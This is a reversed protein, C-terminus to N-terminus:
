DFSHMLNHQLKEFFLIEIFLYKELANSSVIFNEQLKIKLFFFFLLLLFETKLITRLQTIGGM